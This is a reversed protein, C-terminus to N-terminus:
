LTFLGCVAPAPASPPKISIHTAASDIALSCEVSREDQEQRRSKGDTTKVQM